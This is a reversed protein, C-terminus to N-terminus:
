PGRSVKLELKMPSLMKTINKLTPNGIGRELNTVCMKSVGVKKAYEVQTLNFIKRILKVADKLEISQEDIKQYLSERAKTRELMQNDTM